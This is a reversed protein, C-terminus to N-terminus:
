VESFKWIFGRGTKQLGKCTHYIANYPIDTERSAQAVSVFTKIVEGTKSLQVVSISSTNYKEFMTAKRKEITEISQKRGKSFVSLKERTEKSVIRGKAKESIKRKTEETLPKNYNTNKEGTRASSMELKREETWIKGFQHNKKGTQALSLNKHHEDTFVVKRGSLSNSIKNRTTATLKM